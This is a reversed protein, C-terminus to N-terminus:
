RLRAVVKEEADVDDDAERGDGDVRSAVETTAEFRASREESDEGAFEGDDDDDEDVSVRERGDSRRTIASM